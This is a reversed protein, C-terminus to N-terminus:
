SQSVKPHPLNGSHGFQILLGHEFFMCLDTMSLANLTVKSGKLSFDSGENLSLIFEARHVFESRMNYLRKALEVISLHVWDRVENPKKPNLVPRIKLKSSLTKKCPEDLAEFFRVANQISGYEEKYKKHLEDLETKTSIPYLNSNNSKTLYQYFDIFEDNGFSAEILSFLSIFKYTEDIYQMGACWKPNSFHLHGEKVLFRYFSALRLFLNKREPAEISNFFVNFSERSDFNAKLAEYAHTAYQDEADLYMLSKAM